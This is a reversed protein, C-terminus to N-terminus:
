KWLVSSGSHKVWQKAVTLTTQTLQRLRFHLCLNNQNKKHTNLVIHFIEFLVFYFMNTALTINISLDYNYRIRKTAYKSYWYCMVYIEKTHFEIRLLKIYHYDNNYWDGGFLVSVSWDYWMSLTTYMEYIWNHM